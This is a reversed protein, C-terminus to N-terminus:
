SEAAPKKRKQLDKEHRGAAATKNRGTKQRRAREAWFADLEVNSAHLIAFFSIKPIKGHKQEYIYVHLMQWKSPEAIKIHMYLSGNIDKRSVICGVKKSNKPRSGVTFSTKNAGMFGKKGKNAPINGKQFRGNNPCILGLKRCKQCLAKHSVETKFKANFLKALEKRPTTEYQKLFDEHKKLYKM